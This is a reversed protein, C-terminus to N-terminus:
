LNKCVSVIKKLLNYEAFYKQKIKKAGVLKQKYIDDANSNIEKLLKKISIIDDIDEILFYGDEPYYEKLNNVGYYIPICDTLIADYFKETIYNKSYTNEITLSFKYPAVIDIKNYYGQKVNTADTFLTSTGNNKNECGFIDIYPENLISKLITVRKPYLCTPDRNESKTTISSSINDTKIFNNTTLYNYNWVNINDHPHGVGGYLAYMISEEVKGGSIQYKEKEFGFISINKPINRQHNGNWYPEQPFIFYKKNPNTLPAHCDHNFCIGVEYSEDYVIEIDAIDEPSTLFHALVRTAINESSDWPCFFKIKTKM